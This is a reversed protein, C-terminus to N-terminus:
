ALKVKDYIWNQRLATLIPNNALTESSVVKEEISNLQKLLNRLKAEAGAKGEKVNTLEAKFKELNTIIMELETELDVMNNEDQYKALENEAKKLEDDIEKVKDGAFDTTAQMQKQMDKRMYNKFNKAITNAIEQARSPDGNKVSIEIINTTERLPKVELDEILAEICRRKRRRQSETKVSFAELVQLALELEQEKFQVFQKHSELIGNAFVVLKAFLVEIPKYSSLISNIKNIYQEEQKKIERIEKNKQRIAENDSLMTKERNLEMKQINLRDREKELSGLEKVLGEVGLSKAQSELDSITKSITEGESEKIKSLYKDLNPSESHHLELGIQTQYSILENTQSALKRLQVLIDKEHNGLDEYDIELLDKKIESIKDNLEKTEILCNEIYWAIPEKKKLKDLENQYYRIDETYKDYVRDKLEIGLIRALGSIIKGQHKPLPNEDLDLEKVTQTVIHRSKIIEQLTEIRTVRGLSSGILFDEFLPMKNQEDKIWIKTKAEYVPPSVDNKVFATMIAVFFIIFISFKSRWITWFYDEIRIEKRIEQPM